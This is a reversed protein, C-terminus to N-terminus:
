RAAISADVLRVMEPTRYDDPASALKIGKKRSITKTGPAALWHCRHDQVKRHSRLDPRAHSTRETSPSAGFWAALRDTKALITETM